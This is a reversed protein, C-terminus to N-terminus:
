SIIKKYIEFKIYSSLKNFFCIFTSTTFLINYVLKLNSNSLWNLDSYHGLLDFKTLNLIKSAVPLASSFILLFACNVIIKDSATSNIRPILKKLYPINYFGVLSAVM